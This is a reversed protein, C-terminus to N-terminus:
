NDSGEKRTDKVDADAEGDSFRMEVEDGRELKEVSDVVQGDKEVVSYGRSLVDLPDLSDLRNALERVKRRKEDVLDEFASDLRRESEDLEQISENVVPPRRSLLREFQKLLQKKESLKSDLQKELRHELEDVQRHLEEKDPVVIEAAESPTAAAHDAVHDAITTDVEHGVASVVPTDCEHIAYAVVKENFAWLDEISGGGRGVIIVETERRDVKRIKEAVDTESGEGQVKAPALKIHVDFRRKLVDKIDHLAAGSDSTVVGIKRPYSPLEQEERFLGKEKLEKKLELYREFLDGRGTKKMRSVYIQYEGRNEYVDIRGEAVVHDGEDPTFDLYRNSRKFMVCKIVTDDDKLNFYMHGSSHHNFNSIEGQVVVDQMEPDTQFLHKIRDTIESVSYVKGDGYSSLSHDM